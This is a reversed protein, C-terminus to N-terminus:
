AKSGAASANRRPMLKTIQDIVCQNTRVPPVASLLLFRMVVRITPRISNRPTCETDMTLEAHRSAITRGSDAFPGPLAEIRQDGGRAQRQDDVAVAQSPLIRDDDVDRGSPEPRQRPASIIGTKGSNRAGYKGPRILVAALCGMSNAVLSHASAWRIVLPVHASMTSNPATMTQAPM